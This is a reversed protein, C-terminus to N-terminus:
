TISNLWVSFAVLPHNQFMLQGFFPPPNALHKGSSNDISETPYGDSHGYKLISFAVLPSSFLFFLKITKTPQTLRHRHKEEQCYVQHAVRVLKCYDIGMSKDPHPKAL